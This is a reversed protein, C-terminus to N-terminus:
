FKEPHKARFNWAWIVAKERFKGLLGNHPTACSDRQQWVVCLCAVLVLGLGYVMNMQIGKM